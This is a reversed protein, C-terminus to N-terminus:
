EGRLSEFKSFDIPGEKAWRHEKSNGELPTVSGDRICKERLTDICLDYSLKGDQKVNYANM